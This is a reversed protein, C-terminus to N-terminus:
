PNLEVRQKILNKLENKNTPFYKYGLGTDISHTDLSDNDEYDSVDFNYINEDLSRKVQMSINSIIKEYLQKNAQNM